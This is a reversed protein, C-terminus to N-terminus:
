GSTAPMLQENLSLPLSGPVVASGRRALGPWTDGLCFRLQKENLAGLPSEILEFTHIDESYFHHYDWNRQFNNRLFRANATRGDIVILTGPILFPEMMLIDAAMPLRDPHATSIGRVTGEVDFQGPADLYIFDPTINPLNKYMTCARGNFTTMEVASFHFHVRELHDRSHFESKCTDIWHQINDVSHIEFSNARRLNKNVYAGFDRQNQRLADALVITSKGVGFELITTAKRTRALFHLRTLDDFEAPFPTRNQPDVKEYISPAPSAYTELDVGLLKDLGNSLCWQQHDLNEFM